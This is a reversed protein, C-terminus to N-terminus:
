APVGLERALVAADERMTRPGSRALAPLVSRAHVNYRMTEPSEEFAKALYGVSAAGEDLLGHARATEILHFSRRTASPIAALNLSDAVELAKRPQVLDNHMTIAYGDVVGRGFILWPHAYDDGLQRAAADAKDWYRWADGAQGTKAYSLAVALHLLGRRAIHETDEPDALLVCAEEALDVRAEAAEGADRHVHNVYWAAAAIARPSDAEQAVTMARDGTLMVLDPVPQFSLFLQALHYTQALVVLARRREAGELLRASRQSDDLLDPLLAAVATRHGGPAHWARWAQRLRAELVEASEPAQEPRALRYRTLAQKLVPLAAHEAKTYTAATIRHDGTLDTLDEVGLVHALRLLKPLGPMAIRDKEVAKVWEASHGMVDAVYTRTKGARLRARQVRAGFSDVPNGADPAADAPM